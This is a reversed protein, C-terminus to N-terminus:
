DHTGIHTVGHIPCDFSHACVCPRITAKECCAFRRIEEEVMCVTSCVGQQLERQARQQVAEPVLNGCVRCLSLDPLTM